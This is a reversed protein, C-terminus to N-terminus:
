EDLGTESGDLDEAAEVAQEVMRGPRDLVRLLEAYFRGRIDRYLRRRQEPADDHVVRNRVERMDMWIEVDSVVDLKHMTNLTDRFTEAPVIQSFREYSRFFRIASESARMFRDSLADFPERQEPAYDEDPDFAGTRKVSASVLRVTRELREHSRKLLALSSM